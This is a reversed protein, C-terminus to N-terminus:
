KKNAQKKVPKIVDMKELLNENSLQEYMLAIFLKSNNPLSQLEDMSPSISSWSPDRQIKDFTLEVRSGFSEKIYFDDPHLVGLFIYFQAFSIGMYDAILRQKEINLGSFERVGNMLSVTHIYSMGFLKALDHRTHGKESMVQELRIALPRSDIKHSSKVPAEKKEKSIM